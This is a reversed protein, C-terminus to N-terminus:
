VKKATMTTQKGQENLMNKIPNHLYKRVQYLEMWANNLANVNYLTVLQM